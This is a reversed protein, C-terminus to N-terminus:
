LVVRDRRWGVLGCEPDVKGLPHLGPALSVLPDNLVHDETVAGKIQRPLVAATRSPDALLAILEVIVPVPEATLRDDISDSGTGLM